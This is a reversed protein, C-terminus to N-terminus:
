GLRNAELVKINEIYFLRPKGIVGNQIGAHLAAQIVWQVSINGKEVNQLCSKLGLVSTVQTTMYEDKFMLSLDAYNYM